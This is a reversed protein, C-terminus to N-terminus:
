RSEASKRGHKGHYKKYIERLAKDTIHTYIQTTTISSHGLLAQVSRIDAGNRLLDTAYSHRLTHPTVRESIGAKAAYKRMLRQVQRPSLRLDEERRQRPAMKGRKARGVRAFLAPDIDSRKDLYETLARRASEALFVLRIKGGKGRVPFEGRELDVADRDLRCLESVRLGTSFLTELIARDRLSVLHDGRPSALLREIEGPELFAVAREEQKGLEVQEAPISGLDRRALYKLFGRLAITYYNQTVRKLMAGRESQLRNLWVRYRRILEATIQAPRSIKAWGLFRKLYRRYNEVTKASRGREVELYELYEQLLREVENEAM